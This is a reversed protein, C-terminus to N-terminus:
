GHKIEELTSFNTHLLDVLYRKKGVGQVFVSTIAIPNSAKWHLFPIPELLMTRGFAAVPMRVRPDRVSHFKTLWGRGSIDCGGRSLIKVVLSSVGFVSTILIFIISLTLADFRM